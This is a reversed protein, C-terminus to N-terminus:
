TCMVLFTQHDLTFNIVDTEIVPNQDKDHTPVPTLIGSDSFLYCAIALVPCTFFNYPAAYIHWVSNVNKRMQDTKSKPFCFGLLNDSWLINKAQCDVVNNSCSM